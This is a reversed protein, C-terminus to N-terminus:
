IERRRNRYKKNSDLLGSSGYIAIPVIPIMCDYALRLGGAKFEGIEHHYHRTGEIFIVMSKKEKRVLDLQTQYAKVQQRIDNRDIFVVDILTLLNFMFKNKSIEKKAVYV